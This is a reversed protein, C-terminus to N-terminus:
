REGEPQFTALAQGLIEALLEYDPLTHPIDTSESAACFHKIADVLADLKEPNRGALANVRAVILVSEDWGVEDTFWIADGDNNCVFARGESERITWPEGFDQVKNSM